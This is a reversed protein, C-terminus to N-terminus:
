YLHLSLSCFLSCYIALLFSGEKEKEDDGEKFEAIETLLLERQAM